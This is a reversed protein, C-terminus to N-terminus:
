PACAQYCSYTNIQDKPDTVTSGKFWGLGGCENGDWSDYFRDKSYDILCQTLIDKTAQDTAGGDKSRSTTGKPWGGGSGPTGDSFPIPGPAPVYEFDHGDPKFPTASTAGLLTALLPLLIYHM